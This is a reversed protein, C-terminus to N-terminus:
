KTFYHLCVNSLASSDIIYGNEFICMYYMLLYVNAHSWTLKEDWGKNMNKAVFAIYKNTDNEVSPAWKSVIERITYNGRMYHKILCLYAARYGFYNSQFYEFVGDQSTLKGIWANTSIRINLPNNNREGRSIKKTEM